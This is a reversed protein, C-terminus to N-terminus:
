ALACVARGLTRPSVDVRSRLWRRAQREIPMQELFKDCATEVIFVTGLAGREVIEPPTPASVIADDHPCALREDRREEIFIKAPELEVKECKQYGVYNMERGCHPCKRLEAPVQNVVVKRPWDIPKKKRGGGHKRAPKEKDADNPEAPPAKVPQAPEPFGLSLQAEVRALKESRPRARRYALLKRHLETNLDRLRVILAIIMTVLDGFAVAKIKAEMWERLRVVDPALASTPPQEKEVVEDSM